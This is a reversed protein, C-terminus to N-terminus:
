PSFKLSALITGNFDPLFNNSETSVKLTKDRVKIVVMSGTKSKDLAGDFRTGAQVNAVGVMKPPVYATATLTGKKVQAAYQTIIQSYDTSVMEVRLAFATPSQVGPVQGPYFYGNILQATSTEDVYASWTKPYYFTLSGAVASSQYTKYPNKAQEDYSAQLEAAQAKKAAEVAVASKEDSNNKYDQGKTYSSYGFVLSAVLLVALVIIAALSKRSSKPPQYASPQPDM